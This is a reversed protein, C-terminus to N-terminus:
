ESKLKVTQCKLESITSVGEPLKAEDILLVPIGEKITFVLGCSTCVLMENEYKMPATGLPCRLSELMQANIM